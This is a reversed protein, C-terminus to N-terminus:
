EEKKYRRKFFLGIAKAAVPWFKQAGPSEFGRHIM